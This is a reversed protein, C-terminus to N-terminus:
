GTLADVSLGRCWNPLLVMLRDSCHGLMLWLGRDADGVEEDGERM